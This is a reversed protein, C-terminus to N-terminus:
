QVMIRLTSIHIPVNDDSVYKEDEITESVAVEFEELWTNLEEHLTSVEELESIINAGSDGNWDRVFRNQRQVIAITEMIRSLRCFWIFALIEVQKSKLDTYSPYKAEVGFNSESINDDEIIARHLRHPRRMGLALVRDRVLCCWWLLRLRSNQDPEYEWLRKAAAHKFAM